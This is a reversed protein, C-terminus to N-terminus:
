IRGIRRVPASAGDTESALRECGRCFGRLQKADAFDQRALLRAKPFKQRFNM